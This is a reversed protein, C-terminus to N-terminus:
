LDPVEVHDKKTEREGKGKEKGEKEREREGCQTNDNLLRALKKITHLNAAKSLM